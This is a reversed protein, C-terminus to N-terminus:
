EESDLLNEIDHKWYYTNGNDFTFINEEESGQSEWESQAIDWSVPDMQKMISATDLTLWGVQTTEPYCQSVSEEFAEEVNVPILEDRLVSEIVWETGYECGVGPLLRMLDDSGCRTCLGDSAEQYCGYCFPITRKFALKELQQRIESKM